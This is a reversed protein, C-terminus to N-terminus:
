SVLHISVTIILLIFYNQSKHSERASAYQIAKDLISSFNTPGNLKVNRVAYQYANLIGQLITLLCHFAICHRWSHCPHQPQPYVYMYPFSCRSYVCQLTSVHALSWAPHQLIQIYM